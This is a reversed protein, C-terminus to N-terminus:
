VLVSFSATFSPLFVPNMVLFFHLCQLDVLTKCGYDLPSFPYSDYLFYVLLHNKKEKKAEKRYIRGGEHKTSLPLPKVATTQM